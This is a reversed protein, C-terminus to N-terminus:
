RPSFRGKKEVMQRGMLKYGQGKKNMMLFDRVLLSEPPTTPVLRVKCTLVYSM